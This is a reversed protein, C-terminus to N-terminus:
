GTQKIVDLTSSLPDNKVPTYIMDHFVGFYVDDDVVGDHNKENFGREDGNAGTVDVQNLLDIVKSGDTSNAKKVAEALLKVFDYSYMAYDPPEVVARGKSEVGVLDPGFAGEYAKQFALFPGPGVEATMRGAAFTLGDVWSVHDSLQQRVLPDEGTPSAFIPVNWGAGRAARIVEAITTPEAWVLLATSGARRAALVQPAIDPAAAPVTIDTAVTKPISGFADKFAVEGEQGYNSDDHIFGVRYHQPALYEAYRFAIGHDTPAIRFVNPRTAPDVLGEGGAYTICIPIHAANAIKWSADIGTGEDVIAIANEAVAKRVNNLAQQPSLASDMKVVKMTYTASATSIGRVDIQKAALEAGQYITKGIFPAKSFPANVVIVLLKSNAPASAGGCGAAVVLACCGIALRKVRRL